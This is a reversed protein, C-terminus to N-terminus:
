SRGSHSRNLDNSCLTFFLSLLIIELLVSGSREVGGGGGTMTSYPFIGM